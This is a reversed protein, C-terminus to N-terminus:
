RYYDSWDLPDWTIKIDGMFGVLGIKLDKMSKMTFFLNCKKSDAGMRLRDFFKIPV